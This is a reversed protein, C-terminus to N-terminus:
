ASRCTYIRYYQHWLKGRPPHVGFDLSADTLIEEWRPVDPLYNLGRFASRQLVGLEADTMGLRSVAADIEDFVRANDLISSASDYAKEFFGFLRASLSFEAEDIENDRFRALLTEFEWDAARFGPPVVAMRTVFVGGPRLARRILDVLKFCDDGSPVNGFIGDGFVASFTSPHRALFSGWDELVITEDVGPGVWDRYIDIAPASADVSTLRGFEQGAMCRLEPTMGLVLAHGEGGLGSVAQRYIDIEEVDPSTAPFRRQQDSSDIRARFTAEEWM